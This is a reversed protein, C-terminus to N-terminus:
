ATPPDDPWRAVLAVLLVLLFVVAGHRPDSM